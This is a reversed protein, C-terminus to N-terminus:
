APFNTHTLSYFHRMPKKSDACEMKATSSPDNNSEDFWRRAEVRALSDKTESSEPGAQARRLGQVNSIRNSDPSQM